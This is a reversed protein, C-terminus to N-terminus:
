EGDRDKQQSELKFIEDKIQLRQKKMENLSDDSIAGTKELGDIKKDIAKHAEKLHKLRLDNM